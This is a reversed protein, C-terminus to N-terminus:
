RLAVALTSVFAIVNAPGMIRKEKRSTSSFNLVSGLAFFAVVFWIGIRAISYFQEFAIGAKAIVFFAFIFLILIQALAAARM